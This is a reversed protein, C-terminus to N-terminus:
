RKTPSTPTQKLPAIHQSRGFALLFSSPHTREPPQTNKTAPENKDNVEIGQRQLEKIEERTGARSLSGEINSTVNNSSQRERTTLSPRRLCPQKKLSRARLSLPPAVEDQLEKETGDDIEQIHVLYCLQQKHRVTVPQLAKGTVLVGTLCRKDNNPWQDRIKKSPHFFRSHQRPPRNTAHHFESMVLSNTCYSRIGVLPYQVVVRVVMIAGISPACDIIVGSRDPILCRGNFYLNGVGHFM